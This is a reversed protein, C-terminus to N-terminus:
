SDGNEDAARSRFEVSGVRVILGARRVWDAFSRVSERIIDAKAAANGTFDLLFMVGPGRVAEGKMELTEATALLARLEDLLADQEEPSDKAPFVIRQRVAAPVEPGAQLPVDALGRKCETCFESSNINSADCYPCLKL